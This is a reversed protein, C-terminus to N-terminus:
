HLTTPSAGTNAESSENKIADRDKVRLGNLELIQDIIRNLVFSSKRRFIALHKDEGIRKGDKDV